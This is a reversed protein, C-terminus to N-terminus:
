VKISGLKGLYVGIIKHHEFIIFAVACVLLIYVIGNVIMKCTIQNRVGQNQSQIHTTYYPAVQNSELDYSNPTPEIVCITAIPATPNQM